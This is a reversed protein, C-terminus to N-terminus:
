VILLKMYFAPKKKIDSLGLGSLSVCNGIYVQVCMARLVSNLKVWYGLFYQLLVQFFFRCFVSTMVYDSRLLAFVDCSVWAYAWEENIDQLLLSFPVIPLIKQYILSFLFYVIFFTCAIFNCFNYEM